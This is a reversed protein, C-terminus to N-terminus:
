QKHETEPMDVGHHQLTFRAFDDALQETKYEEYKDAVAPFVDVIRRVTRASLGVQFCALGWLYWIRTTLDKSERKFTENGWKAAEKRMKSNFLYANM